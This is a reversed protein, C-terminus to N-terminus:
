LKEFRTASLNSDVVNQQQEYSYQANAFETKVQSYVSEETKLQRKIKGRSTKRPDFHLAAYNMDQGDKTFNNPQNEIHKAKFNKCLSRQTQHCIFVINITLSIALCIIIIMLVNVKSSPSQDATPKTEKGFLIEGCTAVACYLTDSSNLNKSFSYSCKKQANSTLTNECNHLGKDNTYITNAHSQESGTRFWFVSLEGSCAKDESGSLVSCQLTESDSPRAPDSVPNQVVTYSITRQSKGKISLYTGSWISETWDMHACHYMGEDQLVTKLITLNSLKDDITAKMRSAPVSPNYKPDISKQQMVIFKLTDGASQKYWHLWTSQLRESFGCSLTVPEGLQVTVVPVLCNITSVGKTFFFCHLGYCFCASVAKM